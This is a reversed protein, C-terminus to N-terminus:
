KIKAKLGLDVLRRKAKSRGFQLDRRRKSKRDQLESATVFLAKPQPLILGPECGGRPAGNPKEGTM